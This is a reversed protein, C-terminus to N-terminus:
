DHFDSPTELELFHLCGTSDGVIIFDNGATVYCTPASDTFFSAILGGTEFDLVRISFDESFSIIRYGNPTPVVGSPNGQCNITRELKNEMLNWVKLTDDNGSSIAYQGNPTITKLWGANNDLRCIEQGIEIDWYFLGDKNASIARKGNPLIALSNIFETHGKLTFLNAGTSLDFVDLDPIRIQAVVRDGDPTIALASPWGGGGKVNWLEKGTQVEYVRLIGGDGMALVRNGDPTLKM